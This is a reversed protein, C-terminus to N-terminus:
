SGRRPFKDTGEALEHLQIVERIRDVEVAFREDSALRHLQRGLEMWERQWEEQPDGDDDLSPLSSLDIGWGRLARRAAVASLYSGEGRELRWLTKPDKYKAARM